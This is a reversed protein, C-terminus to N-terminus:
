KPSLIHTKARVEWYVTIWEHVTWKAVEQVIVPRGLVDTMLEAISGILKLQQLLHTEQMM